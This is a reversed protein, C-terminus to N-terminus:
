DADVSVESLAGSDLVMLGKELDVRLIVKKLAPFLFNKRGRVEYVDNGGAQYIEKLAGLEAGAEDEVRLGKLDEIFYRGEPLKAAEARPVYLYRGRLAEAEEPSSVGEFLLYAFGGSERAALVKREEGGGESLFLRKIELFRAPHDTEPRIKIEGKVGQPKLVQGVMLFAKM